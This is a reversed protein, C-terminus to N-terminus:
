TGHNKGRLKVLPGLLLAILFLLFGLSLLYEAPGPNFWYIQGGQKSVQDWVFAVFIIFFLWIM